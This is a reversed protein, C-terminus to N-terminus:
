STREWFCISFLTLGPWFGSVDRNSLEPEPPLPKTRRDIELPKSNPQPHNRTTPMSHPSWTERRNQIHHRHRSNHDRSPNPAPKHNPSLDHISTPQTQLQPNYAKDFLLLQPKSITPMKTKSNRDIKPTATLNNPHQLSPPEPRRHSHRSEPTTVFNNNVPSQQESNSQM